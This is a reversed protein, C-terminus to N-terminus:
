DKKTKSFLKVKEKFSFQGTEMDFYMFGQKGSKFKEKSLYYINKPDPILKYKEM